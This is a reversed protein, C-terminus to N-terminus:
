KAWRVMKIRPQGKNKWNPIYETVEFCLKEYARRARLHEPHVVLEFYSIGDRELEAMIHQLAAPGIGKGQFGPDIQVEAIYASLDRRECVVYGVIFGNAHIMWTNALNERIEEITLPVIDLVQDPDAKMISRGIALCEEADARNAKPFALKLANM